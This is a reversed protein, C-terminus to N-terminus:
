PDIVTLTRGIVFFISRLCGAMGLMSDIERYGILPNVGSRRHSKLGAPTQPVVAAERERASEIRRPRLPQGFGFKDHHHALFPKGCQTRAKISRALPEHDLM